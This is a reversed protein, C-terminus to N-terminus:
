RETTGTACRGLELRFEPHRQLHSQLQRLLCQGAVGGVVTQSLDLHTLAVRGSGFAAALAMLGQLALFM